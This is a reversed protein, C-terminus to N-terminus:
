LKRCRRDRCILGHQCPGSCPEGERPPPLESAEVCRGEVYSFGLDCVEEDYTCLTGVCRMGPDCGWGSQVGGVSAPRCAHGFSGPADDQDYAKRRARERAHARYSSDLARCRATHKYGHVASVWFPAALASFVLFTLVEDRTCDPSGFCTAGTNEVIIPFLIAWVSPPLAVVTDVIPAVRLRTCDPAVSPRSGSSPPTVFIWSCSCSFVAALTLAKLGRM